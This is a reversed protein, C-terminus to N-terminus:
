RCARRNDSKRMVPTGKGHKQGDWEYLRQKFLDPGISEQLLVALYQTVERSTASPFAEIAEPKLAVVEAQAKCGAQLLVLLTKSGLVGQSSKGLPERLRYEAM